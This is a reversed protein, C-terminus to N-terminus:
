RMEAPTQKETVDHALFTVVSRPVFRSVNARLWVYWGGSVVSIQNGLAELAYSVSEQPSEDARPDVRREGAVGEFETAVPGPQLVTVDINDDLLEVALSEGFLLDFSKSASYVAFLPLAQRGAVSGVIIIAGRKREVMSPVLLSTLAVPATCNVDIMQRLRSPDQKTFRGALGFGANNVLIGIALDKVAKGIQDPGRRTTLDASIVRTEVNWTQELEAALAELRETRRATLACNIGERAIARAFEAGIGSSAGTILAWDGYRERLRLPPKAFHDASEWLALTVAAFPLLSLLGLFFGGLGGIYAMPWLFMGITVSASYAAAWPWMWPRRRWFGYAGAAYILFHIPETLKAAWGHLLMGFWAEQDVAIPKFLFDWPVYVFAMFACIAMLANMWWPRDSLRASFWSILRNM